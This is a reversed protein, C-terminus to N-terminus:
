WGLVGGGQAGVTALVGAIVPRFLCALGHVATLIAGVRHYRPCFVVVDGGGRWDDIIDRVAIELETGVVGEEVTVQMGAFHKTGQDLWM